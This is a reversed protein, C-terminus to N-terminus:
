LLVGNKIYYVLVYYSCLLVFISTFYICYKYLHDYKKLTISEIVYPAIGFFVGLFLSFWIFYGVYFYEKQLMCYPCKHTPMEYIYTGFFYTVSYYSTFLFLVNAFFSLINNKFVSSVLIIIYLLYFIIMLGLLDLEFPLNDLQFVTSCCFVPVSLPINTFFLIQLVFEICLLVFIFSFLYYKERIYPFVKSQLDLKNIVIWIGLLFLIFIKFLLLVNGYANAGIVGTTCMAGPVLHSLSDLSKIFFVFMVIKVTVAFYIITNILYNRKELSYQKTTTASFNWSKLVKLVSLESIFMLLFLIVEIFLFVVIDNLLFLSVLYYGWRRHKHM